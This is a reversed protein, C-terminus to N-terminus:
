IQLFFQARIQYGNQKNKKEKKFIIGIEDLKKKEIM